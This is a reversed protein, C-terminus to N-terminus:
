TRAWGSWSPPTAWPCWQSWSRPCPPCGGAASVIPAGRAVARDMVERMPADLARHTTGLSLNLVDVGVEDLMWGLAEVLCLSHGRVNQDLVRAM